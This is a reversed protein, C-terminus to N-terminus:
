IRDLHTGKGWVNGPAIKVLLLAKNSAQAKVGSVWWMPRSACLEFRMSGVYFAVTSIRPLWARSTHVLRKKYYGKEEEALPIATDSSLIM